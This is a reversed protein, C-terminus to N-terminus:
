PFLMHSTGKMVNEKQLCDSFCNFNFIRLFKGLGAMQQTKLKKCEHNSPFLVMTVLNYFGSLAKLLMEHSSSM